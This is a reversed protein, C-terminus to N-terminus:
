YILGISLYIFTLINLYKLIIGYCVPSIIIEYFCTQWFAFKKNYIDAQEIFILSKMQKKLAKGPLEEQWM